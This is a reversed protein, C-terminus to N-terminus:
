KISSVRGGGGGGPYIPGGGDRGGGYYDNDININLNKGPGNGFLRGFFKGLGSRQEWSFWELIKQNQEFGAYERLVKDIQGQKWRPMQNYVDRFSDIRGGSSRSFKESLLNWQDIQDQTISSEDFFKNDETLMKTLTSGGEIPVGSPGGVINDNYGGANPGGKGGMNFRQDTVTSVKPTGSNYITPLDGPSKEDTFGATLINNSPNNLLQDPPIRTIGNRTDVMRDNQSKETDSTETADADYDVGADELSGNGDTLNGGENGNMGLKGEVQNKGSDFMEANEDPTVEFTNNSEGALTVETGASKDFFVLRGDSKIRYEDGPHGMHSEAEQSPDFYGVAKSLSSNNENFIFEVSAPNNPDGPTYGASKLAERLDAFTQMSGRSSVGVKVEQYTPIEVEPKPTDPTPEIEGGGGSEGDPWWDRVQDAILYGAVGFVAGYAAGKWAEKKIWKKRTEDIRKERATMEKGLRRERTEGEKKLSAEVEENLEKDKSALVLGSALAIAGVLALQNKARSNKDGLAVKQEDLKEKTYNLRAELQELLRAQKAPDTENSAKEQLLSIKKSLADASVFNKDRETKSKLQDKTLNQRRTEWDKTRLSENANKKGRWFGLLGGAIGAGSLQLGGAGAIARIGAGAGIQKARSVSITKGLTGWFWSQSKLKGIKEMADPYNFYSQMMGQIASQQLLATMAQAEKNKELKAVEEPSKGAKESASVKSLEALMTEKAKEFRDRASALKDQEEKTGHVWDAPVKTLADASQNYADYIKVSESSTGEPAKQFEIIQKKYMKGDSGKVSVEKIEVGADNISSITKVFNTVTEKTIQPRIAEEKELRAISFKKVMGKFIKGVVGSGAM